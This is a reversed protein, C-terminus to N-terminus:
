GGGHSLFVLQGGEVLDRQAIFGGRVSHAQISSLFVQEGLRTDFLNTVDVIGSSEWAGIVEPRSDMTKQPSPIIRQIQAIRQIRGTQPELQWISSEEGSQSGFMPPLSKANDEQVYIFGQASWVLNDPNRIGFDPAPVQGGGADDSDYLITLVAAMSEFDIDVQYITGWADESFVSDRGTSTFVARSGNHPHTSVDEPRSFQFAGGAKAERRLTFGDKYGWQDYGPQGARSADLVEIKKWIGSLVRGTGHFERVTTHGSAAVFYYLNGVLLGNRNLFDSGPVVTGPPLTRRIEFLSANKKGIFLWLPATVVHSSPTDETAMQGFARLEDSQPVTDDGLLLAISKGGVALPTSNEFAMRGVAPVAHLRKSDVDLAWLSGGHPHSIPDAAEEHTLFIRDVFGYQGGQILQASCFRSFGSLGENSQSIQFAQTVVQGRRDYVTHFAQGGRIVDKTRRDLDLYSVRSGKLTTGNRLQYPPGAQRNLEHNVLVRVTEADVLYAGLGDMSGVLQYQGDPQLFGESPFRDGVTAVPTVTWKGLGRGMSVREEEGAWVLFPIVVQIISILLVIWTDTRNKAFPKMFMKM